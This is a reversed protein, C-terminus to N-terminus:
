RDYVILIEGNKVVVIKEVFKTHRSAYLGHIQIRIDEESLPCETIDFIFNPSQKKKKALMGYLLNKGSGTPSKLDFREGDILYDPTQIGQPYMVQPVFQVSKGYKGSLIAAVEREQKTPHLIVQKGDVKYTTGNMIYEQLETVTGKIGKKATWKNTIDMSIINGDAAAQQM